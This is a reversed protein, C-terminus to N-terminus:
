EHEGQKPLSPMHPGTESSLPLDHVGQALPPSAKLVRGERHPTMRRRRPATDFNLATDFDHPIDINHATDLEHATDFKHTTDFEHAIDIEHSGDFEPAYQFYGFVPFDKFYPDLNYGNSPFFFNIAEDELHPNDLNKLVNFGHTPFYAGEDPTPHTYVFPDYGLDHQTFPPYRPYFSSAATDAVSNLHAPVPTNVVPPLTAPHSLSHTPLKSFSPHHTPRGFSPPLGFPPRVSPKGTFPPRTPRKGFSPPLTSNPDNADELIIIDHDHKIDGDAYPDITLFDEPLPAELPGDLPLHFGQGHGRSSVALVVALVANNRFAHVKPAVSSASHWRLITNNHLVEHFEQFQTVVLNM